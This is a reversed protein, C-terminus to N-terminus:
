INRLRSHTSFRPVAYMSNPLGLSQVEAQRINRLALEWAISQRMTPPHLEVATGLKGVNAEQAEAEGRTLSRARSLM